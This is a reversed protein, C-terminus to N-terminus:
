LYQIFDPRHLRWPDCQLEFEKIMEPTRLAPCHEQAFLVLPTLLSVKEFSSLDDCAENRSAQEFISALGLRLPQPCAEKGFFRALDALETLAELNFASYHFPNARSLELRQLGHSDFQMPMRHCWFEELWSEAKAAFGLWHAIYVFQVYFWSLHNNGRDRVAKGQESEELYVLYHEFWQLIGFHDAETIYGATSLARAACLAKPLARGEILGFPSPKDIGPITQAFRLHPSMRTQADIFFTKIIEAARVAYAPDSTHCWGLTLSLSVECALKLKSRDGRIQSEPNTYGDKRIFPAQPAKPNPWFYRAISFYDHVDGGPAPMLKGCVSVTPLYM